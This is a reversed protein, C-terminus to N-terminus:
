AIMDASHTFNYEESKPCLVHDLYLPEKSELWRDDYANIPLAPPAHSKNHVM